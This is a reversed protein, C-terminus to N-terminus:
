HPTCRMGLTTHLTESHLNSRTCFILGWEGYMAKLARATRGEAEREKVATEFRDTVGGFVNYYYSKHGKVDLLSARTTRDRRLTQGLDHCASYSENM